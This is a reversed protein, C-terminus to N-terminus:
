KAHCCFITNRFREWLKHQTLVTFVTEKEVVIVYRVADDLVVQVEGSIFNSDIFVGCIGAHRCDTEGRTSRPILAAENTCYFCIEM